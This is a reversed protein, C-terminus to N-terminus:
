SHPRFKQYGLVVRAHTRLNDAEELAVELNDCVYTPLLQPQLPTWALV